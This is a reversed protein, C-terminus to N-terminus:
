SNKDHSAGAIKDLHRQYREDAHRVLNRYFKKPDTGRKDGSMLLIAKRQPDFAFAIRWIGNMWDFRLEKMNPFASGRLTDVKPRGLAPGFEELLGANARVEDQWEEPMAM